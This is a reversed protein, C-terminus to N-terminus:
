CVLDSRSQLESTHEESRWQWRRERDQLGDKLLGRLEARDAHLLGDEPGFDGSLVVREEHRELEGADLRDGDRLAHAAPEEFASRVRHEDRARHLEEVLVLRVDLDPEDDRAVAVEVRE